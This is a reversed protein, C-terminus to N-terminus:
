YNQAQIGKTFPREGSNMQNWVRYQPTVRVSSQNQMQQLNLSTALNFIFLFSILSGVPDVGGDIGPTILARASTQRQKM